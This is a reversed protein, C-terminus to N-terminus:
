IGQGDDKPTYDASLIDQLPVTIRQPPRLVYLSVVRGDFGEAVASVQRLAGDGGMLILRVPLNHDLSYRIFREASGSM